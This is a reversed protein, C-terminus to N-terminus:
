RPSSWARTTGSVEVGIRYLHDLRSDDIHHAVVRTVIADVAEWSCRLLRSISTKDMRQALWGVINEFDNTHRANPRAWPVQETRVRGCARCDIRHIDAGLWVRCAGFDLHRWRRRSSDYRAATRAGCRCLLRRRRRRLGIVIGEDTFAVTHVSAGPLQLIRNFATTVRM